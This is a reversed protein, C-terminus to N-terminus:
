HSKVTPTLISFLNTPQQSGKRLAGDGYNKTNPALASFCSVLLNIRKGKTCKEKGRLIYERVKEWRKNQNLM